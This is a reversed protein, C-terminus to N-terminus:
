RAGRQELLTATVADNRDRALRLATVGGPAQANPDAGRGLLVQVMGANRNMVAAMLPTLGISSPKDVWWGLDLLQTVADEDGYMVATMVDNYKPTIVSPEAAPASAVAPAPAPLAAPRAVRRRPTRARPEGDLKAVQAPPPTAAVPKDAKAVRAPPPTGAAPKDAKAMQALPLTAAAPKAPASKQAAPAPKAPEPAAAAAVTTSAPQAAASVTTPAGPAPASPQAGAPASTPVKAPTASVSKAAPAGKMAEQMAGTVETKMQPMVVYYVYAGACGAAIVLGGVGAALAKIFHSPGARVVLCNTIIDHLAQKRRTFAALLFGIDMPIASIIKALNRLFARAFSLRAGNLDTVQIGVLSKGFTAQRSSSEMVPWYLLYVTFVAVQGILMAATGAVATAIGIALVIIVIIASDVLLAAFRAWFGAYEVDQTARSVAQRSDTAM